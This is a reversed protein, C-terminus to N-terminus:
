QAMAPEPAPAAEAPAPRLAMVFAISIFVLVAVGLYINRYGIIPMLVGYLLPMGVSTIHNVSVGTTLTPTLEEAPAIQHVHINLGMNLITALRVLILMAALLTANQVLGFGVCGAALISYCIILGRRPGFRDVVAGLYPAAFLNLVSSAFLLSSIQWVKWDFYQILVLTCLSGLVEKRAGEFFTLVYYLWYRKKILIRPQKQATAGLGRPLRLFLLASILIIAGGIAYSWRLSLDKFINSTLALVGMGAIGALSGVSTLMGLVRGRTNGTALAMGLAPHLPMYGHFGFSTFTEVLILAGYTRVLGTTMYGLGIVLAWAAARWPLPLHMSLAAVFILALGPIERIGELLMVQGTSVGLTDVFYNMRAGGLLGEGFRMVFVALSMVMLDRTMVAILDKSFLRRITTM